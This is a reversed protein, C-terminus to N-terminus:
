KEKWVYGDFEKKGYIDYPFITISWKNEGKYSMSYFYGDPAWVNLGEWGNLEVLTKNEDFRKHADPILSYFIDILERVREKKDM